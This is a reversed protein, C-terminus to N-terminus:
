VRKAPTSRCRGHSPIQRALRLAASGERLATETAEDNPFFSEISLEALTIDVATGFLTVTSLFSLVGGHSRLRLPVAV